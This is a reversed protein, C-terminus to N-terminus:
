PACEVTLTRPVHPPTDARPAYRLTIPSAVRSPDVGLERLLPADGCLGHRAVADVMPWLLPRGKLAPGGAVAAGYANRPNFAGEVRAYVAPSLELSRAEGGTDEYEVFFRTSFGEYGDITTFVRPHPSAATAAALGQLVPVNMAAGLMQALGLAVVAIPGWREIGRARM